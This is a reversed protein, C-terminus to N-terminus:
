LVELIPPRKAVDPEHKYHSCAGSVEVHVVTRCSAFPSQTRRARPHLLPAGRFGQRVEARAVSQASALAAVHAAVGQEPVPHTPTPLYARPQIQVQYTPTPVTPVSQYAALFFSIMEAAICAFGEGAPLAECQASAAQRRKRACISGNRLRKRYATVLHHSTINLRHMIFMNRVNTRFRRRPSKAFRSCFPGFIVMESCWKQARKQRQVQAHSITHPM